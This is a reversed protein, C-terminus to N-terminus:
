DIAIPNNLVNECRSGVPIRFNEIVGNGLKKNQKERGQARIHSKCHQVTRHFELLMDRDTVVLWVRKQM